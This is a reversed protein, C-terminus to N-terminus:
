GGLMFLYPLLSLGGQLLQGYFEKDQAEQLLERQRLAQERFAGFQRELLSQQRNWAEIGQLIAANRTEIDGIQGLAGLKQQEIQSELGTAAGIAQQGMGYAINQAAQQAFGSEGFGSRGRLGALQQQQALAQQAMPDVMQQFQARLWGQGLGRQAIGRLEEPVETIFQTPDITIPEYGATLWEPPPGTETRRRGFPRRRGQEDYEPGRDGGGARTMSESRKGVGFSEALLDWLNENGGLQFEYDYVRWSEGTTPDTWDIFYSLPGGRTEQQSGWKGYQWMSEVVNPDFGLFGVLMDTISAVDIDPINPTSPIEPKTVEPSPPSPPEPVNGLPGQMSFLENLRTLMQSPLQGEYQRLAARVREPNYEPSELTGLLVHAWEPQGAGSQFPNPAGWGQSMGYQRIWQAIANPTLGGGTQSGRSGDLRAPLPM